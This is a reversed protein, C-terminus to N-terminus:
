PTTILMGARFAPCTPEIGIPAGVFIEKEKNWLLFRYGLKCLPSSFAKGCNQCLLPGTVLQICAQEPLPVCTIGSIIRYMAAELELLQGDFERYICRIDMMFYIADYVLEVLEGISRSIRGALQMTGLSM